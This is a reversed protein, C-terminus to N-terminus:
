ATCQMMGHFVFSPCGNDSNVLITGAFHQAKEFSKNLYSLQISFAARLTGSINLNFM